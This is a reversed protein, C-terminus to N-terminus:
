FGLVFWGDEELSDALCSQRIRQGADDDDDDVDDDMRRGSVRMM